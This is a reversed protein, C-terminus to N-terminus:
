NRCAVVAFRQGASLGASSLEVASANGLFTGIAGSTDQNLDMNFSKCAWARQALVTTQNFHAMFFGGALGTLFVIAVFGRKM